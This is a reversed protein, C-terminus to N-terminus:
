RDEELDDDFDIDDLDDSTLSGYGAEMEAILDDEQDHLDKMEDIIEQISKKKPKPM